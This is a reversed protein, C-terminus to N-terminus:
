WGVIKELGLWALIVEGAAGASVETDAPTGKIRLFDKEASLLGHFYEGFRSDYTNILIVNPINVFQANRAKEQLYLNYYQSAGAHIIYEKQEASELVEVVIISDESTINFQLSLKGKYFDWGDIPIRIPEGEKMTATTYHFKALDFIRRIHRINEETNQFENNLYEDDAAFDACRIKKPDVTKLADAITYCSKETVNPGVSIVLPQQSVGLKTFKVHQLIQTKLVSTNSFQTVHVHKVNPPLSVNSSLTRIVFTSVKETFDEWKPLINGLDSEPSVDSSNGSVSPTKIPTQSKSRSDDGEPSIESPTQSKSSDSGFLEGPLSLGTGDKVRTKMATTNTPNGNFGLVVVGNAREDDETKSVSGLLHSAQEQCSTSELDVCVFMMNIANGCNNRTFMDIYRLTNQQMCKNSVPFSFDCVCAISIDEDGLTTNMYEFIADFGNNLKTFHAAVTTEEDPFDKGNGISPDVRLDNTRQALRLIDRADKASLTKGVSNRYMQNLSHNAHCFSNNSYAAPIAPEPKPPVPTKEAEVPPKEAEVPPKEAEVPIKAAEPPPVPIKAAEPIPPVTASLSSRREYIDTENQVKAFTDPDVVKYVDKLFELSYPGSPPPNFPDFGMGGQTEVGVTAYPNVVPAARPLPMGYLSSASLLLGLILFLLTRRRRKSTTTRTRVIEAAQVDRPADDSGQDSGDDKEDGDGPVRFDVLMMTRGLFNYMYERLYQYRRKTQISLLLNEPNTKQNLHSQNLMQRYADQLLFMQAIYRQKIRQDLQKFRESIIHYLETEKLIYETYDSWDFKMEKSEVPLSGSYRKHITKIKACLDDISPITKHPADTSKSASAM